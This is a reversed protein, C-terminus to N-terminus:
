RKPPQGGMPVPLEGLYDHDVEEDVPLFGNGHDGDALSVGFNSPPLSPGGIGLEPEHGRRWYDDAALNLGSALAAELLSTRDPPHTLVLTCGGDRLSYPAEGDLVVVSIKGHVWYKVTKSGDPNEFRSEIPGISDGYKLYDVTIEGGRSGHYVHPKIGGSEEFEQTEDPGVVLTHLPYKMPLFGVVPPGNSRVDSAAVRYRAIEIEPGRSEVSSIKTPDIWYRGDGASECGDVGLKGLRPQTAAAFRGSKDSNDLKESTM